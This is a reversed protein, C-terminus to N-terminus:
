FHLKLQVTIQDAGAQLSLGQGDSRAVNTLEWVVLTAGITSLAVSAGTLGLFLRQRQQIQGRLEEHRAASTGPGGRSQDRFEDVMSGSMWDLIAAGVGALAGAGLLSMGVVGKAGVRRGSDPEPEPVPAFVVAAKAERRSQISRVVELSRSSVADIILGLALVEADVEAREQDEAAYSDRCLILSQRAERLEGLKILPVARNCHMVPDDHLEIALDFEEVSERYRGQGYFQVAMRYHQEAQEAQGIDESGEVPQASLTGCFLLLVVALALGGCCMKQEFVAM